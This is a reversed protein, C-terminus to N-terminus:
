MGGGLPFGVSFDVGVLRTEDLDSFGTLFYAQVAGQFSGLPFGLAAGAGAALASESGEFEPFDESKYQHTMFGVLGFVQPVLSGSTAFAYGLSALGGYLNTKDGEAEHSNSGYFGHAGVSAGADGLAFDVGAHGLWGVKAYDAYTSMPITAGGGIIITAQASADGAAVLAWTATALVATLSRRM